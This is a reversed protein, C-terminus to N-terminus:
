LNKHANGGSNFWIKFKEWKDIFHNSDNKSADLKKNILEPNVELFEVYMEYQIQPTKKNANNKQSNTKFNEKM